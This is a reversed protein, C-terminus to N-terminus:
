CFFNEQRDMTPSGHRRTSAVSRLVSGSWRAEVSGGSPALPFRRLPTLLPRPRCGHAHRLAAFFERDQRNRRGRRFSNSAHRRPGFSTDLRWGNCLRVGISNPRSAREPLANFSRVSGLENKVRDIVGAWALRSRLAITDLCAGGTCRRPSRCQYGSLADAFHLVDNRKKLVAADDSRVDKQLSV